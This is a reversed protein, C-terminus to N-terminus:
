SASYHELIFQLKKFDPCITLNNKFNFFVKPFEPIFRVKYNETKFSIEKNVILNNHQFFCIDARRSHAEGDCKESLKEIVSKVEDFHKELAIVIDCEYFNTKDKMIECNSIGVKDKSKIMEITELAEYFRTQMFDVFNYKELLRQADEDIKNNLINQKDLASYYGNPDISYQPDISTARKKRINVEPNSRYYDPLVSSVKLNNPFPYVNKVILKLNASYTALICGKHKSGEPAMYYGPSCDCYQNINQPKEPDKLNQLKWPNCKANYAACDNERGYLDCVPICSKNHLDVSDKFQEGDPFVKGPPCVCKYNGIKTEDMECKALRRNCEKRGEDSEESCITKLKCTQNDM